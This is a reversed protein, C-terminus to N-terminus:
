SELHERFFAVTRPWAQETARMNAGERDAQARLFGHGAGDYIEVEYSKGAAQMAAQAREITANVRQDDGGYLGLVPAAIASWSADEAPSTGYYVVAAGLGPQHLAYAFSQGGGWCYGVVGIEGSASPITQAYAFVADLRAMTEEPSLGRVAATVEDRNAFAETGGGNPGMGSLLDPALAIFGDAALQDAVGRIWDSLGYIEQIVIVVPADDSREPHVVWTRIPVDSGPYTVDVWEGHRPSTNLRDLADEEAPPLTATAMAASAAGASEQTEGSDSAPGCAALVALVALLALPARCPTRPARARASVHASM